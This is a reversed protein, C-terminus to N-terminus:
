ADNSSITAANADVTLLTHQLDFVRQPLQTDLVFVVRAADLRWVARQLDLQWVDEVGEVFIGTAGGALGLNVLFLFLM